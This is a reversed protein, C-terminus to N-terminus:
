RIQVTAKIQAFLALGPKLALKQASHSSILARLLQSGLNLTVKIAGEHAPQLEVVKAALINMISSDEARSLSLSVDRADIAVRIKDTGAAHIKPTIRLTQGAGLDIAHLDSAPNPQLPGTLISYEHGRQQTLIPENILADIEGCLTQNKGMLILYQALALLEDLQHTVLLVPKTEAAQQILGMAAKRRQQDLGTLPEDLFVACADKSLARALAVRHQEGGSLSQAKQHLLRDLDLAKTIADYHCAKTTNQQGLLINELATKHALLRPEQFAVAIHRQSPTIFRQADQWTTSGLFISGAAKELGILTRLLTTKGCGSEGFIVTIGTAPLACDLSGSLVKINARLSM